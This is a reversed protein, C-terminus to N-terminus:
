QYLWVRMLSLLKQIDIPKALYDSAGAEICKIKDGKMAKATLAIIPLKRLNEKARITKITEYGDMEPMMIDMLIMDIQPQKTLFELAKKGNSKSIVTMGREELLTTLAFTNRTDDDVILIKKGALVAEQDHIRHLIKQKEKSLRTELQHLFLTVEDLLYDLSKATKITLIEACQQLLVQESLTLERDIYAVIPILCCHPNIRLHEIFDTIFGEGLSLDLVMCDFTFQQLQELVQSQTMAPTIKIDENAVYKIIEQQRQTEGSIVLLNKVENALFQTIKKFAEGLETLGVPKLLYGIAGMEKAEKSRDDASIFHVPIHRTHLNDKLREMVTLGDVEPLLIDLIIAHPRYSEALQLGMQGDEAILCKFGKEHALESLLQSFKRDDEIILITRDSSKLNKRDDILVESVKPSHSLSLPDNIMITNIEPGESSPSEQVKVPNSSNEPLYLTFISGQGEESSLKIEGGLLRALQRSISLGLGTGGFRRSTTGDAQQFAEFILQQKDQPIGIGSDAVQIVITTSLELKLDILEQSPNPRHLSLKVQGHNTFKFANSLLNNIIQQLRQSDTYIVTPLDEALIVPFDLGKQTAIPKFKQEIAKILEIIEIKETNIVIKGAEIKSLDLIENILNLLDSGASYITQAYGIQKEDLNNSKNEALLQSLILLSNLPTRLEHSMNALFESKYKSALELEKAKSEVTQRAKELIQNKEQIESQQQELESTRKQLEANAQQLEDQQTRLEESLTQLEENSQQLEEQQKQLQNAQQQSQQLLWQLRTRSEATNVAIAINSLAQELFIRQLETLQNFSGIEIVGKVQHEYLFPAIFVCRPIAQALGSQVRYVYEEPLHIRMLSRQELAAQGVLGEGWFFQTAGNQPQQYGYNAISQLYLIKKDDEKVLYFLGMQAAVYNTIFDIITKALTTVEQEGRLKDHLQAQGSKLWDQQANKQTSEQLAKTMQSLTQGLEDEESLLKIDVTYHGAAVANAQEAISKMGQQLQEVCILIETIEDQGGYIIEKCHLQGKALSKLLESVQVLPVTLRKALFNILVMTILLIIISTLILQQAASFIEATLEEKPINVVMMWTTDHILDFQVPTGYSIVTQQLIKSTRELFFVQGHQLKELFTMFQENQYLEKSKKGVFFKGEDRHSSAVVTGDAAYLTVYAGEFNSIEIGSMQQQLDSLALDIGAIGLFHREETLIPVVLSIILTSQGRVLYSYPNIIQEKRFKKPLQYYDGAGAIEYDTLPELFGQGREDRTWYPIFRGTADHGPQNVFEADKGDFANPEFAVYIALFNPNHEIMDKLILTAEERRVNIKQNIMAEFINATTKASDLAVGIMTKITNAHHLATERAIIKIDREGMRYLMIEALLSVIIIVMTVLLGFFVMLKKSINFQKFKFM